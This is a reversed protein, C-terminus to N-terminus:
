TSSRRSSPRTACSPSARPAAGRHAAGARDRRREPVAARVQHRAAREPATLHLGEPTKDVVAGFERLAQMHFDIPRPRRHPLRGPRPHVRPRAPAAAPRLVPDPDPQLRRARQDRRRQRAGRQGPRLGARRREAGDTVRRRAAGAPRPRGRRRPHAPVDFLRSPTEGLLAAVMAKSVLNKAGRVRIQGHLPAGGHVVLVDDTLAVELPSRRDREALVVSRARPHRIRPQRGPLM